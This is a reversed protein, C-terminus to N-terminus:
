SGSRADMEFLSRAAAQPRASPRGGRALQKLAASVEDADLSVQQVENGRRQLVVPRGDGTDLRVVTTTSCGTIVLALLLPGWARPLLPSFRDSFPLSAPPPTKM